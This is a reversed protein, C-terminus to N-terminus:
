SGNAFGDSFGDSFADYVKLVGGVLPLVLNNYTFYGIGTTVDIVIPTGDSGGFALLPPVGKWTRVNNTIM